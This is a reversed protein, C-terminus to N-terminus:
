EAKMIRGNYGIYLADKTVIPRMFSKHKFISEYLVKGNKVDVVIIKERSQLYVKDDYVVPDCIRPYKDKVEWLISGDSPSIRSFRNNSIALVVGDSEYAGMFQHTSDIWKERMTESDYAKLQKRSLDCIIVTNEAIAPEPYYNIIGSTNKTTLIRGNSADLVVFSGMGINAYIKDNHITYSFALDTLQTRWLEKGEKNFALFEKSVPNVFIMDEVVTVKNLIDDDFEM